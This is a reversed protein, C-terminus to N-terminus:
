LQVIEKANYRSAIVRSLRMRNTEISKVEETLDNLHKEIENIREQCIEKVNNSRTKHIKMELNAKEINLELRSKLLKRSSSRGLRNLKNLEIFYLKKIKDSIPDTRPKGDDGKFLTKVTKLDMSVYVCVGDHTVFMHSRQYFRDCFEGLYTSSGLRSKCFNNADEDTLCGFREKARKIAHADMKLKKIDLKINEMTVDM